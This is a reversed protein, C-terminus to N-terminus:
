SRPANGKKPRASAARLCSAKLKEALPKLATAGETVATQFRAKLEDQLDQGTKGLAEVATSGLPGDERFPVFNKDFNAVAANLYEVILDCAKVGQNEGSAFKRPKEDEMKAEFEDQPWHAAFANMDLEDEGFIYPSILTAAFVFDPDDEEMAAYISAGTSLALMARAKITDDLWGDAFAATRPTFSDSDFEDEPFDEMVIDEASAITMQAGILGMALENFKGAITEATTATRM